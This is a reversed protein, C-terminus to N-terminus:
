NKNDIIHIAYTDRTSKFISNALGNFIATKEGTPNYNFSSDVKNFKNKKLFRAFEGDFSYCDILITTKCGKSNKIKRDKLHAELLMMSRELAWDLLLQEFDLPKFAKRVNIGTIKIFLTADNSNEPLPKLNICAIPAEKYLILQSNTGKALFANDKPTTSNPDLKSFKSLEFGYLYLQYKSSMLNDSIIKFEDSVFLSCVGVAGLCVLLVMSNFLLSSKLFRNNKTITIFESISESVEIFDALVYYNYCALVLVMFSISYKDWIIRKVLLSQMQRFYDGNLTLSAECLDPTLKSFELKSEKQSNIPENLDLKRQSVM